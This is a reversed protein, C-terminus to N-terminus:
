RAQAFTIPVSLTAGSPTPDFTGNRARKLICTEVDASLGHGSKKTVSSVDGNPAVTIAITISGAMSPDSALGKNYCARFGPRLKMIAQEANSIPSPDLTTSVSGRPPAILDRPAFDTSSGTISETASATATATATATTTATTTATATSEVRATSEFPESAHRRWVFFGATFAVVLILAIVLAVVTLYNREGDHSM